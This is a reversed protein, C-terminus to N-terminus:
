KLHDFFYLEPLPEELPHRRLIPINLHQDTRYEAFHEPIVRYGNALFGAFYSFTGYSQITHNCNALLALDYPAMDESEEGIFFVNKGSKKTGIHVRGWNLDDSVYIFALNYKKAPFKQRFLEIADLYYTPKLPTVSLVKKQFDLHDIPLM